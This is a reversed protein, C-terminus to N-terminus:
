KEAIKEIENLPIFLGNKYYNRYIQKTLEYTFFGLHIQFNYKEDEPYKNSERELWTAILVEYIDIKLKYDRSKLNVLEQIHSLLMPRFLLDDTKDIIKYANQKQNFQWFKFTKNIYKKIDKKDFPSVYMKKISHFGNGQTNFKKIRLENPEEKQSSFYHTRCTIIVFKFNQILDILHDFENSIDDNSIRPSEDFGDLLLITKEPSNIAKIQSILKDKELGLPLLKISYKNFLSRVFSNYKSFLNILFTTKGMGSDGLILYFQANPEVGRFVKRVFFNQLDERAAFAFSSKLNIEESPDINQCKTRIYKQQAIIISGDNYFPFLSKSDRHNKFKLRFFNFIKYLGIIAGIIVPLQVFITNADWFWNWIEDFTKKM